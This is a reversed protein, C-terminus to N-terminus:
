REFVQPSHAAREADQFWPQSSPRAFFNRRASHFRRRLRAPVRYVLQARAASSAGALVRLLVLPRLAIIAPFLSSRSRTPLSRLDAASEERDAAQVVFSHNGHQSSFASNYPSLSSLASTCVSQYLMFRCGHGPPGPMSLLKILPLYHSAVRLATYYMDFRCIAQHLATM